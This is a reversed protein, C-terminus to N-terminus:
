LHYIAVVVGDRITADVPHDKVWCRWVRTVVKKGDVLHETRSMIECEAGGAAWIRLADAEKTGVNVKTAAEIAQPTPNSVGAVKKPPEKDSGIGSESAATSGAIVARLEANEKQLADVRKRLWALEAQMQQQQAAATQTAAIRHAQEREALRANAEDIAAQTVDNPSGGHANAATFVCALFALLLAVLMKM